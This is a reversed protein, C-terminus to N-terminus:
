ELTVEATAAPLERGRKGTAQSVVWPYDKMTFDSIPIEIM